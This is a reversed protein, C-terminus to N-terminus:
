PAARILIEPEPYEERIELHIKMPPVRRGKEEAKIIFFDKKRDVPKRHDTKRQWYNTGPPPFVACFLVM